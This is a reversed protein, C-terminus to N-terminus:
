KEEKTKKEFGMEGGGSKRKGGSDEEEEDGGLAGGAGGFGGGFAGPAAAAAGLVSLTPSIDALFGATCPPVRTGDAATTTTMGGFGGFVGGGGGAGAAAGTGHPISAGGGGGRLFFFGGNEPQLEVDLLFSFEGHLLAFQLPLESLSSTYSVHMPLSIENQGVGGRLFWWSSESAQHTRAAAAAAAAHTEATAASRTGPQLSALTRAAEEAAAAHAAVAAAIHTAQVDAADSATTDHVVGVCRLFETFLESLTHVSLRTIKIRFPGHFMAISFRYPAPGAGGGGVGLEQGGEGGVRVTSSSAM